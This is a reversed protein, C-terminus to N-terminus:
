SGLPTYKITFPLKIVLDHGVRAVGCVAAQWTERDM